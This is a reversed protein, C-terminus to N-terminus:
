FKPLQKRSLSLPNFDSSGSDDSDSDTESDDSSDSDSESESESESDNWLASVARPELRPSSTLSIPPSEAPSTPGFGALAMINPVLTEPSTNDTNKGINRFLHNDGNPSVPSSTTTPSASMPSSTTSQGPSTITSSFVTQLAALRPPTSKQLANSPFGN